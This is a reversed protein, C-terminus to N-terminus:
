KLSLIMFILELFGILMSGHKGNGEPTIVKPNLLYIGTGAIERQSIEITTSYLDADISVETVESGEESHYAYVTKDGKYRRYEEIPQQSKDLLLYDLTEQNRTPYWEIEEVSWLKPVMTGVMRWGNTIKLFERYSPSLTVGLRAESQKIQLETAGPYGLWNSTLVEPFAELQRDYEGSAIVRESWQRLFTEWDFETM